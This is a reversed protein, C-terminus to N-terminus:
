KVFDEWDRWSVYSTGNIDMSIDSLYFVASKATEDNLLQLYKKSSSSLKADPANASKIEIAFTRKWDAITDVELGKSDRFFTLNTKKGRNMRAKLLEAVAFTEVAAGKYRSLLLDEKTELRLLHCMLGSDVFYLKPTKVISRGLNNTNPELFHIIFSAELVSLWSKVTPASIGVDRAISDMSLLRGSHVACIQVFKKFLSLNGPNIRDQIDLDLYTDIYSEYWDEPIFHKDKDYLPPYQGSFILEYPNDPLMGASKLEHISFPLLKLFAARGALSDTMNEKLRFQSSGTLIFKGPASHERDVHLKIADFIEPVKQAEDIVAGEPFAMIFDHPNSAALNRMTRDDFTVYSKDPFVAKALTSKGSQRPGTIGVVPFQSALRLLTDAATRKIM